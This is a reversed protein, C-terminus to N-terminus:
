FVYNQEYLIMYELFYIYKHMYFVLYMYEHM